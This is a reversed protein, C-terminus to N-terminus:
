GEPQVEHSSDHGKQHWKKYHDTVIFEDTRRKFAQRQGVGYLYMQCFHLLCLLLLKTGKKKPFCLLALLSQTTHAWSVPMSCNVTLVPVSNSALNLETSRSSSYMETLSLVRGIITKSFGAGLSSIGIWGDVWTNRLCSSSDMWDLLMWNKISLNLLTQEGM